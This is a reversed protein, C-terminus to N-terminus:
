SDRGQKALTDALENYYIGSHGPIHKINLKDFGYAACWVCLPKLYETYAKDTWNTRTQGWETLTKVVMINDCYINLFSGDNYKESIALVGMYMGVVEAKVSTFPPDTVKGYSQELIQNNKVIVFGYGASKNLIASGDTFLSLNVTDLDDSKNQFNSPVSTPSAGHIFEYAQEYTNFKKYIAGSYGSIYKFAENWTEYIGPQSGVKVAYFM